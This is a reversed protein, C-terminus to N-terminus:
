NRNSSFAPLSTNHFDAAFQLLEGLLVPFVPSMVGRFPLSCVGTAGHGCASAVRSSPRQQSCAIPRSGFWVPKHLKGGTAESLKIVQFMGLQGAVGIAGGLQDQKDRRDV